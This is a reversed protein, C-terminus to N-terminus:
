FFIIFLFLSHCLKWWYDRSISTFETKGFFGQFQSFQMYRLFLNWGREYISIGALILAPKSVYVLDDKIGQLLNKIEIKFVKVANHYSLIM